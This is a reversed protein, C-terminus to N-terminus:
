LSWYNVGAPVSRRDLATKVDVIVGGPRVMDFLKAFAAERFQRHPVALVLGDLDHFSDIGSLELGYEHRAEAPNALPDHVLASIGFERLESVIDPVRSNRLDPVDEKFALGLIGIRANKVPAEAAILMKVLR